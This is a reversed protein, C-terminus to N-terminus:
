RGAHRRDELVRIGNRGGRGERARPESKVGLKKLEARSHDALWDMMLIATRRPIILSSDWGQGIGLGDLQTTATIQPFEIFAKNTMKFSAAWDVAQDLVNLSVAAKRLEAM